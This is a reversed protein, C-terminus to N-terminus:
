KELLIAFQQKGLTLLLKKESKAADAPVDFLFSIFPKEPTGEIATKMIVAARVKASAKRDKVEPMQGTPDPFGDLWSVPLIRHTGASLTVESSEPKDRNFALILYHAESHKQVPDSFELSVVVPVGEIAVNDFAKTNSISVQLRLDGAVPILQGSKFEKQPAVPPQQGRMDIAGCLIMALVLFLRAYM